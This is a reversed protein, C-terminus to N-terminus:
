KEKERKKRKIKHALYYASGSDTIAIQNPDMIAKRILGAGHLAGIVAAFEDVDQGKFEEEYRVLLGPRQFYECEADALNGLVQLFEKTPKPAEPANAATGAKRENHRIYWFVYLVALWLGAILALFVWDSIRIAKLRLFLFGLLGAVAPGIFFAPWGKIRKGLDESISM